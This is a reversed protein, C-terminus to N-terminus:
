QRQMRLFLKGAAFTLGSVVVLLMSYMCLALGTWPGVFDLAAVVFSVAFAVLGILLAARAIRVVRM